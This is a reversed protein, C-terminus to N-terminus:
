RPVAPCRCLVTTSGSSLSDWRAREFQGLASARPDPLAPKFGAGVFRGIQVSGRRTSAPKLGVGVAWRGPWGLVRLVKQGRHPHMRTAANGRNVIDFLATELENSCIYFLVM